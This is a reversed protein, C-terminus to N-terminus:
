IRRWKEERAWEHARKVSGKLAKITRKARQEYRRAEDTTKLVFLKTGAGEIVVFLVDSYRLVHLRRKILSWYFAIEYSSMFAVQKQTVAEFVERPEAANERGIHNKFFTQIRKDIEQITEDRIKQRLHAPNRKSERKEKSKQKTTQKSM